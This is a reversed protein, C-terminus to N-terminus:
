STNRELSLIIDLGYGKETQLGSGLAWEAGRRSGESPSYRKLTSHKGAQTESQQKNEGRKLEGSRHKRKRITGQGRM